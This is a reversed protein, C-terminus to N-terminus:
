KSFVGAKKLQKLALTGVDKAARESGSELDATYTAIWLPGKVDNAFFEAKIGFTKVASPGGGLPVSTGVFLSFPGARVPVGVSAYANSGSKVVTSEGTVTFVLGADAGLEKAKADISEDSLLDDPQLVLYAQVAEIGKRKLGSVVTDELVRMAVDDTTKALVVVKQYAAPQLDPSAWTSKSKTGAAAALPVLLVLLVALAISTRRLMVEGAGDQRAPASGEGTKACGSLEKAPAATKEEKTEEQALANLGLKM